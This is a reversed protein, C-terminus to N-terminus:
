KGVYDEKHKSMPNSCWCPEVSNCKEIVSEKVSNTLTGKYERICRQINDWQHSDLYDKRVPVHGRAESYLVEFMPHANVVRDILEQEKDNFHALLGVFRVYNNM